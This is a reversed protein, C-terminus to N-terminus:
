SEFGKWESHLVSMLLVDNYKGNKYIAQRQVGEHKFGVAEYAKIGRVNDAFVILYIRNLNLDEFGHKLCLQAVKRGYGKGWYEKEGIMIGFEACNNIPEVKHLGCNGIHVWEEGILIEIALVQSENPPTEVQRDFWKEEMAKSFPSNVLLFRIVDPDNLWRVFRPIDEREIARLRIKDGLIM